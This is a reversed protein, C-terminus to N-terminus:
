IWCHQSHPMDSHMWLESWADCRRSLRRHSHVLTLATPMSYYYIRLELQPSSCELPLQIATVKSQIM